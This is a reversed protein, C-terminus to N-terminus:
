WCHVRPYARINNLEKNKKEQLKMRQEHMVANSLAGEICTVPRNSNFLNLILLEKHTHIM